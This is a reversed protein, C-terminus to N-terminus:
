LGVLQAEVALAKAPEPRREDVNQAIGHIVADLIALLAALVAFGLLGRDPYCSRYVAAPEHDRHLVIARAHIPFPQPCLGALQACGGARKRFGYLQDAQRANT